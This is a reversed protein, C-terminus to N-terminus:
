QERLVRSWVHRVAAGEHIDAGYMRVLRGLVDYRVGRRLASYLCEGAADRFLNRPLFYPNVADRGAGHIRRHQPVVWVDLASDLLHGSSNSLRFIDGGSYAEKSRVLRSENGACSNDDVAAPEVDKSRVRGM